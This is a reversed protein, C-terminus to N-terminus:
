QDQSETRTGRQGAIGAFIATETAGLLFKRGAHVPKDEVDAHGTAPDFAAVLPTDEIIHFALDEGAHPM